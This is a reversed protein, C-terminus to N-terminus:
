RDAHQSGVRARPGRVVLGALWVGCVALDVGGGTCACGSVVSCPLFHPNDDDEGEGAEGEGEGEEGKIKGKIVDACLGSSRCVSADDCGTRECGAVCVGDICWDAGSGGTDVITVASAGGM